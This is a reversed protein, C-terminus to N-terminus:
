PASFILTKKLWNRTDKQKGSTRADAERRERCDPHAPPGLDHATNLVFVRPYADRPVSAPREGLRTQTIALASRNASTSQGAEVATRGPWEGAM